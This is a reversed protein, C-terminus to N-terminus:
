AQSAVQVTRGGESEAGGGGRTRPGKKKKWNMEWWEGGGPKRKKKKQNKECFGSQQGRTRDNCLGEEYRKKPEHVEPSEDGRNKEQIKPWRNKTEGGTRSSGWAAGVLLATSVKHAGRIEEGQERGSQTNNKEVWCAKYVSFRSKPGQQKEEGNGQAGKQRGSKATTTHLSTEGGWNNGRLQYCASKVALV